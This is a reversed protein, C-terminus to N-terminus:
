NTWDAGLVAADAPRLQVQAAPCGNSVDFNLISFLSNLINGPWDCQCEDNMIRLEGNGDLHRQADKFVNSCKAASIMNKSYGLRKRPRSKAASEGAPANTRASFALKVSSGSRGNSLWSILSPGAACM